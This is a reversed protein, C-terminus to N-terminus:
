MRRLAVFQEPLFDFETHVRLYVVTTNRTNQTTFKTTKTPYSCRTHCSGHSGSHVLLVATLCVKAADTSGPEKQDGQQQQLTVNHTNIKFSLEALEKKVQNGLIEEGTLPIVFRLIVNEV